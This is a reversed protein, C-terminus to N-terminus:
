RLTERYAKTGNAKVLKLVEAVVLLVLELTHSAFHSLKVDDVYATEGCCSVTFAFGHM